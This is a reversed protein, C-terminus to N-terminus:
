KLSPSTCTNLSRDVWVNTMSPRVHVTVMCYWRAFPDIWNSRGSVTQSGAHSAAWTRHHCSSPPDRRGVLEHEDLANSIVERLAHAPSWHELVKEVNLDFAQVM